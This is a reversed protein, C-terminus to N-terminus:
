QKLKIILNVEFYGNRFHILPDGPYQDRIGQSGRVVGQSGSCDTFRVESSAGPVALEPPLHLSYCTYSM